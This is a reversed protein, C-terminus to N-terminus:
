PAADVIHPIFSSQATFQAALKDRIAAIQEASMLQRPRMCSSGRGGLPVQVPPGPLQKLAEEPRDQFLARFDMDSSLKDLLVDTQEQTLSPM